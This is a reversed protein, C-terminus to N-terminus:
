RLRPLIAGTTSAYQAYEPGFTATMTQEEIRSKITFGVYLLVVAILGRVQHRALATGTMALILGSYIPHRVWRYPGSRILQHGVKVSVVSSWNRGLYARAWIALGLGAITIAIGLWNTWLTPPYLRIRLWGQPVDGAFMLWFAAINLLAYPLRSSPAERRETRKTGIAWLLWIALWGVWLSSCITMASM